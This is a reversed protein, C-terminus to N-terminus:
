EIGEYKFIAKRFYLDYDTDEMYDKFEEYMEQRISPINERFFKLFNSRMHYHHTDIIMEELVKFM